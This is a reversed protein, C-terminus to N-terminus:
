KLEKQITMSKEKYKQRLADLVPQLRKLTKANAVIVIQNNPIYENVNQIINKM